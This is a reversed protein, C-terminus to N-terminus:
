RGPFSALAALVEDIDAETHSANVQFRIEEDGRPVVPFALGTALIGQLRLHAVLARTKATDRVMLPVVPHESPITEYGLRVMGQELRATMARLHDLLRLGEPSDLIDIAALAAAAEGATIPNSYIYMPSTERLYDRLTRSCVLYGGNVGLAKGLTAVLLDAPGAGTQEETGRGTRGFAGVGHSDDVVVVVGEPFQDDFRRAAALIEPLPAHDGRMSFIGDTVVLARRAKGAADALKGRLGDLDLHRYVEKSLPRALRIANIICNHNLEDSVVATEATILPVLVSVVAAYASSFIMGAERGHFRALREELRAHPEHTGSIFRVAAPGTGFARVAEEEARVLEPRFSLGLYGNSSMKLFARRGEGALEVRPGRGGGAPLARTVVTEDRKTTGREALAQLEGALVREIRETPM